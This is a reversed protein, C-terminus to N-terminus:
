AWSFDPITTPVYVGMMSKPDAALQLANAVALETDQLVAKAALHENIVRSVAPPLYEAYRVESGPLAHDLAKNVMSQLAADGGSGNNLNKRAPVDVGSRALSPVTALFNALTYAQDPYQTGFSVALGTTVLAAHSGPLLTAKLNQNAELTLAYPNIIGLPADQTGVSVLGDASLAAWTNLLAEVDPRDFQPPNPITNADFLGATLLSRFLTAQFYHTTTDLGPQIQGSADKQALKRVAETLQDLTWGDTPYPIGAQDFAAPDYSLVGLQGSLPLAWVGGDWQFSQWLAPYFDDPNLKTDLDTYPKLDLVAHARTAQPTLHDSTVVVVDATGALDRVSQLYQNLDAAPDPFNLRLPIVDVQVNPHATQFQNIIQPTFLGLLSDPVALSLSVAMQQAHLVMSSAAIIGICVLVNLFRFRCIKM